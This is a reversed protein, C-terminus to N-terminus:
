FRKAQDESDGYPFYWLFRREQSNNACNPPFRLAIWGRGSPSPKGSVESLETKWSFPANLFCGASRWDNGAVAQSTFFPSQTIGAYVRSKQTVRLSSRPSHRM